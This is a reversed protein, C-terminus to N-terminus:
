RFAGARYLRIAIVPAFLIPHRRARDSVELEVGSHAGVKELLYDLGADFTLAAKLVRAAGRPKGLVRRLVWKFRCLRRAADTHSAHIGTKLIDTFAAYRDPFRAVIDKARAYPTEPRLETRYSEALGQVWVETKDADPEVLPAAERYFHVCAKAFTEIIMQRHEPATAHIVTPQVFRAWLMSELGGSARRRFARESVVAYKCRLKGGSGDPLQLFHVGPPLLWTLLRILPNPYASAYRDVIVYFDLMKKPDELDRLASGYFITALVADGYRETIADAMRLAPAPLPVQEAELVEALKKIVDPQSM